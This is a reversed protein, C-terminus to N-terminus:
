LWSHKLAFGGDDDWGSDDGNRGYFIAGAVKMKRAEEITAPRVPYSKEGGKPTISGLVGFGEPFMVCGLSYVVHYGMDMGCGKVQISWTADKDSLKMDLVKAVQFSINRLTVGEPDSRDLCYFSIRRLMGSASVHRLSCYVTSGPTLLNHLDKLYEEKLANAEQKTM